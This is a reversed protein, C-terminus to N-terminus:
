GNSVKLVASAALDNQPMVNKSVFQTFEDIDILNNRDTDYEEM